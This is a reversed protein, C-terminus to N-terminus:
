NKPNKALNEKQHIIKFGKAWNTQDICNKQYGYKMDHFTMFHWIKDNWSMKHCIGYPMFHWSTDWYPYLFFLISWVFQALSKLIMWWFCFKFFFLFFAIKGKCKQDFERTFHNQSWALSSISKQAFKQHLNDILTMVFIGQTVLTWSLFRLKKSYGLWWCM